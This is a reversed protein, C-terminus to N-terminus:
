RPPELLAQLSPVVRAGLARLREAAQHGSPVLACQVGLSRAVDFDHDTDGVLLVEAPALGLEELWQRGLDLKGGAYHDQLGLLKVFHGRVGLQDAQTELRRQESASLVSMALGRGKLEDLVQAAPGQLRCEHQRAQYGAIFETGVAEWSEAGFDFGLAEYYARVPFRFVAQYREPPMPPLNRRALLGSMVEVCLWADDLLTGNWDWIVHRVGTWDLAPRM